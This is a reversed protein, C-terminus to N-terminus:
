FRKRDQMEKVITRAQNEDLMYNKKKYFISTLVGLFGLLAFIGAIISGVLFGSNAFIFTYSKEPSDPNYYVKVTSQKELEKLLDSYRYVGMASSIIDDDEDVAQGSGSYRIGDVQYHYNLIATSGQGKHRTWVSDITATTTPYSLPIQERMHFHYFGYSMSGAILLM